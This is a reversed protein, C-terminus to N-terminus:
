TRSMPWIVRAERGESEETFHFLYAGSWYHHQSALTYMHCGALAQGCLAAGGGSEEDDEKREEGKSRKRGEKEERQEGKGGRRRGM